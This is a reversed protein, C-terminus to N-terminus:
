NKFKGPADAFVHDQPTSVQAKVKGKPPPAPTEVVPISSAEIFSSINAEPIRSTKGNYTAFLQKKEEDYELCLGAKSFLKLGHNKGALFLPGHLEAFEVKTKM